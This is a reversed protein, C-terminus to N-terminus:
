YQRDGVENRIRHLNERMKDMATMASRVQGDLPGLTADHFDRAVQDNWHLRVQDWKALLDKLAVQVKVRGSSVSM